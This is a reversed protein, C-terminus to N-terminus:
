ERRVHRIGESVTLVDKHYPGLIGTSVHGDRPSLLVPLLLGLADEVGARGPDPLDDPELGYAVAAYVGEAQGWVHVGGADHDLERDPADFRPHVEARRDFEASLPHEFVREAHVGREDLPAQGEEMAAFGRVRRVQGVPRAGGEPAGLM